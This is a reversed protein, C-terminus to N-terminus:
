QAGGLCLNGEDSRSSMDADIIKDAEALVSDPLRERVKLGVANELHQLPERFASHEECHDCLDRSCSHGSRGPIEEPKAIDARGHTELLGVM